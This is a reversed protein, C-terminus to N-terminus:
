SSRGAVCTPPNAIETLYKKIFVNPSSWFAKAVIDSMPVGRVWAISFALKRMDHARGDENKALIKIAKALWYSINAATLPKNSVPHLFLHGRHAQDKTSALYSRLNEVPCLPIDELLKSFSIEPPLRDWTQNKFLFGRKVPITVANSSFIISSREMAALESARNGSALATLFIAKLLHHQQSEPPNFQPNKLSALATELSWTPFRKAEPPRLRFQTKALLSFEKSGTDICFALRLPLALSSRYGLITRPSLKRDFFLHSLFEIVTNKTVTRTGHPLWSKFAKWAVEAQRQSSPRYSTALATATRNSLSDSYIARLFHVRDLSRLLNITKKNKRRRDM